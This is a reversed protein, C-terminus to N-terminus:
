RLCYYNFLNTGMVLFDYLQEMIWGTANCNQRAQDIYTGINIYQKTTYYMDLYMHGGMCLTDLSAAHPGSRKGKTGTLRSCVVRSVVCANSRKGPVGVFSQEGFFSTVASYWPSIYIWQTIDRGM